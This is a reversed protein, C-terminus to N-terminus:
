ISREAVRGYKTSFAGHCFSIQLFQTPRSEGFELNGVDRGDTIPEIDSIQERLLHCSSTFDGIALHPAKDPLNTTRPTANSVRHGATKVMRGIALACGRM